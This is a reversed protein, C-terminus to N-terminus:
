ARRARRKRIAVMGFGAAGILGLVVSPPEPEDNWVTFNAQSLDVPVNQNAVNGFATPGNGNSADMIIRWPPTPGIGTFDVLLTVLLGGNTSAPINTAPNTSEGNDSNWSDDGNGPVLFHGTTAMFNGTYDGTATASTTLPSGSTSNNGLFSITPSPGSPFKGIGAVFSLDAIEINISVNAVPDSGIIFIPIQVVGTGFPFIRNSNVITLAAQASTTLSLLIVMWLVLPYRM